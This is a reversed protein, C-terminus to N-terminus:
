KRKKMYTVPATRCSDIYFNMLITDGPRTQPAINVARAYAVDEHSLTRHLRPSRRPLPLICPIPHSVCPTSQSLEVLIQAAEEMKMRDTTSRTQYAM